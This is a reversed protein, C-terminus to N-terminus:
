PKNAQIFSPYMRVCYSPQSSKIPHFWTSTSSFTGLLRPIPIPSVPWPPTGNQTFWPLHRSDKLCFNVLSRGRGRRFQLEDDRHQIYQVRAQQILKLQIFSHILCSHIQAYNELWNNLQLHFQVRTGSKAKSINHQNFQMSSFQTTNFKLKRITILSLPKCQSLPPSLTSQSSTTNTTDHIRRFM